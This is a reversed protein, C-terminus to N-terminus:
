LLSYRQKLRAERQEPDDHVHRLSRLTERVHPELVEVTADGLQKNLQELQHYTTAVSRADGKAPLRDLIDRFASVYEHYRTNRNVLGPQAHLDSIWCAAAFVDDTRSGFPSILSSIMELDEYDSVNGATLRLDEVIEVARHLIADKGETIYKKCGCLECM